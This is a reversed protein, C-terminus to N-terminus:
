CRRVGDLLVGYALLTAAWAPACATAAPYLGMRDVFPRAAALAVHALAHARLGRKLPRAAAGKADRLSLCAAAGLLSWAGFARAMRKGLLSPLTAVPFPALIAGAAFVAFARACFALEVAATSSVDEVPAVGRLVGSV